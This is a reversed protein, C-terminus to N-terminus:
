NMPLEITVTTGAGPHSVVEYTGGVEGALNRSYEIGAHGIDGHGIAKMDFGVGDDRVTVRLVSDPYAVEVEVSGAEAHTWSNHVAGRALRFALAEIGPTARRTVDGTVFARLGTPVIFGDLYEVLCAALGDTALTPPHLSFMMHRLRDIADNTLHLLHQIPEHVADNARALLQLNLSVATMAQISDDHLQGAILQRERDIGDLRRRRIIHRQILWDVFDALADLHTTDVDVGSPAWASLRGWRSTGAGRVERSARAPNTLPSIPVDDQGHDDFRTLGIVTPALEESMRACLCRLLPNLASDDLLDKVTEAFIAPFVQEFPLVAPTPVSM